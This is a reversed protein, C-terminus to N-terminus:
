RQLFLTILSDGSTTGPDPHFDMIAPLAVLAVALLMLNCWVTCRAMCGKSAISSLLGTLPSMGYLM